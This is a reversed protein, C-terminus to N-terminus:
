YESALMITLVRKTKTIDAKDESHFQLTPDYYDIKWFIKGDAHEFSGFDHEGYPDNGETFDNFNRVQTFIEAQVDKSLTSIGATIVVQGPVKKDGRRFADNLEAISPKEM